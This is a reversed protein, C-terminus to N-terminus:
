RHLMKIRFLDLFMSVSSGLISVKSQPSNDWIVGVEKTRYGKKSAIYLMEPDFCFGEILLENAIDRAVDGKLLKFGCQTDNFEKIGLLTKMFFNFTKGMKERYWPQHVRVESSELSRSGIVLDYGEGMHILLKGLEEIPTSLDADCMLVYEGSSNLIGNKVSFGKGRNKGNSVIKLRGDQALKSEQTKAITGDTSGDDVVLVEYEYEKSKLYNYIASLTAEIRNEENYAPIVISLFM